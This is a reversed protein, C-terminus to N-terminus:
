PRGGSFMEGLLEEYARSEEVTLGRSPIACARCVVRRKHGIFENGCSYCRCSYNGNEHEADEPWDRSRKLVEANQAQGPSWEAVLRALHDTM